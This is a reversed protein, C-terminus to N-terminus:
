VTAPRWLANSLSVSTAANIVPILLGLVARLKALGKAEFLVSVHVRPFCYFQSARSCIGRAVPLFSM